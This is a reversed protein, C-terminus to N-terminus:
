AAIVGLRDLTSQVKATLEEAERAGLVQASMVDTGFEFFFRRYIQSDDRDQARQYGAWLAIAKRLVAQANQRAVHNKTVAMGAPTGMLAVPPRPPGDIREIEGRMARLVEPDLEILDGDVDEPRGRSVPTPVYGCYICARFCREYTRTCEPCVRYPIGEQAQNASRRPRRDLTWQRPRDPPGNHYVVNSVHDIIIGAPKGSAAIYARREAPTFTDWTDMLAKTIYPRLPRGFQQAYLNFSATKRAMSIVDCAPVDFGEGFLDVNVLQLIERNRFRRLISARATDPTDATVVEAPVNAARYAAAIETAHKVDVAFTIGLKGPAIRLYHKVVDGVISSAHTANALKLPSYDGGASLPVDSMDIKTEPAYIRYDCLYGADILERMTPGFVMADMVGDGGPSRGLGYGDARGPTATWGIGRANPFLMTTRGWKNDALVHHAEDTQWLTVQHFWPEPERRVLTDVGAVGCRATPDYFSRGVEQMHITVASRILAQPGIVRHRIENRALALSMQGVLESRHAVGISAANHQRFEHAMNVTKGGGTPAVALVNRAGAGWAAHISVSLDTQYPRLRM